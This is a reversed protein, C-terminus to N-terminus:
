KIKLTKSIKPKSHAAVLTNYRTVQEPTLDIQIGSSVSEWKTSRTERHTFIYKRNGTVTIVNQSEEHTKASKFIGALIEIAAVKSKKHGAMEKGKPTKAFDDMAKEAAVVIEAQAIAEDRLELVRAADAPKTIIVTTTM